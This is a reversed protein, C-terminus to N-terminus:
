HPCVVKMTAEKEARIAEREAQRVIVSTRTSKRITKEGTELEDPIDTQKSPSQQDSYKDTKSDDELKPVVKKKKKANIKKMTKGPFILRKKIPLRERVEKEPEDDPESEDEGFDSDFEDGADQEEEYNDDEEDEKLADQNWFVEDQEVEDELLKTIRPFSSLISNLPPRVLYQLWLSLALWLPHPPPFRAGRGVPPV